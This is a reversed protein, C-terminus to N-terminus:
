TLKHLVFQVECVNEVGKSLAKRFTPKM